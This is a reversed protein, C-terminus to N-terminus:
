FPVQVALLGPGTGRGSVLRCFEVADLEHTEGAAGEVWRGGAAGTLVLEHARGHRGAWETVVDDVLVGDHEATLVMSAGTATCVDSRHMWADRTLIVDLLFGTTWPEPVGGVAQESRAARVPGPMRRRGRAARPGVARYERVLEDTSLEATRAVQVATLADVLEGGATGQLRRAALMQRAMELPSAAFRAMGLCHGAVDRVDWGPCATAAGWDQARLGDLLDAFRGYETVALAASVERPMTARRPATPTTTAATM